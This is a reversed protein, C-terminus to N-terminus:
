QAIESPVLKPGGRWWDGVTSPVQKLARAYESVEPYAASDNLMSYAGYGGAGGAGLGLAGQLWGPVGGQSPLNLKALDDTGRITAANPDIGPNGHTPAIKAGGATPPAGTGPTTKAAVPPTSIDPAATRGAPATATYRAADETGTTADTLREEPTRGKVTTKAVPPVKTTRRAPAKKAPIEKVPASKAPAKKGAPTTSRSAAVDYSTPAYGRDFDSIYSDPAFETKPITLRKQSVGGVSKKFKLPKLGLRSLGAEGAELLATGKGANKVVWNPDVGLAACKAAFGENYAQVLDNM